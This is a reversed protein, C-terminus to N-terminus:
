TGMARLFIKRLIQPFSQPFGRGVRSVDMHKRAFCRSAGHQHARSECLKEMIDTSLNTTGTTKGEPSVGASWEARTTAMMGELNREVLSGPFGSASMSPRVM